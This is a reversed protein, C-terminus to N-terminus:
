TPTQAGGRAGSRPRGRWSWSRWWGRGRGGRCLGGGRGGRVVRGPQARRGVEDPVLVGGGQEREQQGAEVAGLQPGQCAVGPERVGRQEDERRPRLGQARVQGGAPQGGVRWGVGADDDPLPEGQPVPAVRALQGDPDQAGGDAAAVPRVARDLHEGQGHRRARVQVAEGLVLPGVLVLRVEGELHGVRVRQHQAAQARDERAM